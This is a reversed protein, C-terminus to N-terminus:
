TGATRAATCTVSGTSTTPTPGSRWRGRGPRQAKGCALFCATRVENGVRHLEPLSAGYFAAVQEVTVQRKLEGANVFGSRPRDM